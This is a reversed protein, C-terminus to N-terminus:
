NGGPVSPMLGGQIGFGGPLSPTLKTGLGQMLTPAGFQPSMPNPPASAGPSTGAPSGPIAIGLKPLAPVPASTQQVAQSGQGGGSDSSGSGSGVSGIYSMIPSTPGGYGPNTRSMAPTAGTPGGDEDAGSGVKI